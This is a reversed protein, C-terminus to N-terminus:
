TAPFKSYCPAFSEMSYSQKGRFGIIARSIAAAFHRLGVRRLKRPPVVALFFRRSSCHFSYFLSPIGPLYLYATSFMQKRATARRPCNATRQSHKM